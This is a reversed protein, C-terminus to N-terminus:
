QDGGIITYRQFSRWRITIDRVRYSVNEDARRLAIKALDRDGDLLFTLRALATDYDLSTM